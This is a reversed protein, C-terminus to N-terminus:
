KLKEFEEKTIKLKALVAERAAEKAAKAADADAKAVPDIVIKKTVPNMRWAKRDQKNKPIDQCSIKTVPLGEAGIERVVDQMSDASGDIYQTVRISGDPNEFVYCDNAHLPFCFGLFFLALILNKM